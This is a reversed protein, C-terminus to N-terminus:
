YFQDPIKHFCFVPDLLRLIFVSANVYLREFQADRIADSIQIDGLFDIV